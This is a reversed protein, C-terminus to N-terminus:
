NLVVGHLRISTATYIWMKKVEASTPPSHDVERDPRKVGPSSGGTGMPYSTPHVESGSTLLYTLLYTPDPVLNPSFSFRKFPPVQINM